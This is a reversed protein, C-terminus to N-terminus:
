TMHPCNNEEDEIKNEALGHQRTNGANQIVTALTNCTVKLDGPGSFLISVLGYGFELLGAFIGHCFGLRMKLLNQVLFMTRSVLLHLFDVCTQSGFNRIGFLVNRCFFRPGQARKFFNRGIGRLRQDLPQRTNHWVGLKNGPINFASRRM